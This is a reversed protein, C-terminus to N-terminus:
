GSSKRGGPRTRRFCGAGTGLAWENEARDHGDLEGGDGHKHRRLFEPPIHEAQAMAELAGPTGVVRGLDFRGPKSLERVLFEEGAHLVGLNHPTPEAQHRRWAREYAALYARYAPRHEGREPHPM